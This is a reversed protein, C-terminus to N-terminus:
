SMSVKSFFIGVYGNLFYNSSVIFDWLFFSLFFLAKNAKSGPGVAVITFFTQHPNPTVLGM